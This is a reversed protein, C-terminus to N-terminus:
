KEKLAERCADAVPAFTKAASNLTAFDGWAAHDGWFQEVLRLAKQMKEIKFALEIIPAKTTQARQLAYTRLDYINFDDKEVVASVFLCLMLFQDRFRNMKEIPLVVTRENTVDKPDPLNEEWFVEPCGKFKFDQIKDLLTRYDM